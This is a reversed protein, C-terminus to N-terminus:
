APDLGFCRVLDWLFDLFQIERERYIYIYVCVQKNQLIHGGGIVSRSRTSGRRRSAAHDPGTASFPNLIHTVLGLSIFSSPLSRQSSEGGVLFMICIYIYIYVCMHVDRERYIYIYIHIYSLLLLLSLIM